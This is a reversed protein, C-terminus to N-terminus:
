QAAEATSEVLAASDAAVAPAAVSVEITADAVAVAEVAAEVAAGQVSADTPEEAPAVASKVSHAEASAGSPEGPPAPTPAVAPVAALESVLIAAPEAVLGIDPEALLAALPADAAQVVIASAVAVAPAEALVTIATGSDRSTAAERAAASAAGASSPLPRRYKTCAERLSALEEELPGPQAEGDDDEVDSGAGTRASSASGTAPLHGEEPKPAGPLEGGGNSSTADGCRADLLLWYHAAARSGYRAALAASTRPPDRLQPYTEVFDQFRRTGGQQMRRLQEPSWLDM